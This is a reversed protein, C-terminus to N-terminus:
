LSNWFKLKPVAVKSKLAFAPTLGSNRFGTRFSVSNQFLSGLLVIVSVPPKQLVENPRMEPQAPFRAKRSEASVREPVLLKDPFL